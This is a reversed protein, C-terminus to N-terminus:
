NRGFIRLLALFMNIFDLYLSLAGIIAMKSMNEEDGATQAYYTKLKQTDYATLLTFIIVTIISLVYDFQSSQMFMNVIMAIIVGFLGMLLIMGMKSLDANTVMGFISMVIFMGAATFFAISITGIDYTIFITSLMAGNLAAYLFYFANAASPSINDISAVLRIVLLLQVIILGFMIWPNTYLKIQIGPMSNVWMAVAGSVTLGLFTWGYVKTFFQSLTKEM